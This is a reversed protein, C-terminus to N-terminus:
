GTAKTHHDGHPDLRYHLKKKGNPYTMEGVHVKAEHHLNYKRHPKEGTMRLRGGSMASDMTYYNVNPHKVTTGNAMTETVHYGHTKGTEPNTVAKNIKIHSGHKFPLYEDRMKRAVSNNSFQRGVDDAMKELNENLDKLSEKFKKLSGRLKRKAEAKKQANARDMNRLNKANLTPGKDIISELRKAEAAQEKRKKTAAQDEPNNGKRRIIKGVYKPNVKSLAEM